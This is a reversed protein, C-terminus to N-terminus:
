IWVQDEGRYHPWPRGSGSEYDTLLYRTGEIWIAQDPLEILYRDLESRQMQLTRSMEMTVGRGLARTIGEPAPTIKSTSMEM